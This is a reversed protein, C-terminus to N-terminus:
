RTGLVTAKELFIAAAVAAMWFMSGVGLAILALMLAWCCGLCFLGHELGAAVARRRLLSGLPSRCRHLCAEKLPSLQYAAAAAVAGVTLWRTAGTLARAAEFAVGAASPRPRRPERVGIDPPPEDLYFDGCRKSPSRRRLFNLARRYWSPVDRRCTRARRVRM